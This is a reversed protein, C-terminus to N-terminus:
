LLTPWLLTTLASYRWPCLNWLREACSTGTNLWGSLLFAQGMHECPIEQIKTQAKAEQGRAPCWQSSGPEMKKAEGMLYVDILDGQAKEEGPQVTGARLREKDSLHRLGKIM